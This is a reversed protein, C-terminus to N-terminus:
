DHQGALEILRNAFGEDVVGVAVRADRGTWHGLTQRDGAAILPIGYFASLRGIKDKTNPGADEALIALVVEGSRMGREVADSGFILRGARCAMGLFRWFRETM